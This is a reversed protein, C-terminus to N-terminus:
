EKNLSNNLHKRTILWVPKVADRFKYTTRAFSTCLSIIVVLMPLQCAQIVWRLISFTSLPVVQSLAHMIRWLVKLFWRYLDISTEAIIDNASLVDRDWM